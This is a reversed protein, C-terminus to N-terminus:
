SGNTLHPSTSFYDHFLIMLLVYATAYHCNLIVSKDVFIIEVYFLLVLYGFSKLILRLKEYSCPTHLLSM